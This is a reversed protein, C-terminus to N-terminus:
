NTSEQGGIPARLHLLPEFYKGQLHKQPRHVKVSASQKGQRSGQYSRHTIQMAIRINKM